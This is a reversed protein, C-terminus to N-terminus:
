RNHWLQSCEILPLGADDFDLGVADIPLGTCDDVPGTATACMGDPIESADVLTGNPLIFSYQTGAMNSQTVPVIVTGQMIKTGPSCPPSGEISLPQWGAENSHPLRRSVGEISVSRRSSATLSIHRYIFAAMAAVLLVTLVSLLKYKM